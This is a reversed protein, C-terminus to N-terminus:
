SAKETLFDFEFQNETPYRQQWAKDEQKSKVKPNVTKDNYIDGCMQQIDEVLHTIEDFNDENPRAYKMNHAVQAMDRIVLIKDYMEQITHQM